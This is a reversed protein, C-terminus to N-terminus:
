TFMAGEEARSGGLGKSAKSSTTNKLQVIALHELDTSDSFGTVATSECPQSRPKLAARPIARNQASPKRQSHRKSASATPSEPLKVTRLPPHCPPRGSPRDMLPRAPSEWYKNTAPDVTCDGNRPSAHEPPVFVTHIRGGIPLLETTKRAEEAEGGPGGQHFRTSM